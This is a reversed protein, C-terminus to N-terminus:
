YSTQKIQFIIKKVNYNKIGLYNLQKKINLVNQRDQNCILIKINTKNKLININKIKFKKILKKDFFNANNDIIGLCSYDRKKFYLFMM